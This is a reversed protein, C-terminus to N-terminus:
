FGEPARAAEPSTEERAALLVQDADCRLQQHITGDANYVLITQALVTGDPAHQIMRM